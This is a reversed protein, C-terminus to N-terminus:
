ILQLIESFNQIDKKVNVKSWDQDRGYGYRALIFPLQNLNASLGDNVTDGVFFAKTFNTNKLIEQIM